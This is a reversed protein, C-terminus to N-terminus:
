QTPRSESPETKGIWSVEFARKPLGESFTSSAERSAETEVVYADAEDYRYTLIDHAADEATDFPQCHAVTMEGRGPNAAIMARLEDTPPPRGPIPRIEARGVTDKLKFVQWFTM